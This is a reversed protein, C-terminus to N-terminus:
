DYITFNAPYGLKDAEIRLIKAFVSHFTGMWLNKAESNGVIKAIRDKMERAAKNTFTLSLINFPDIGESMLYAIRYTLVRTKGSGAGAIIIMPGDKQITPELQAENLQSLYTEM